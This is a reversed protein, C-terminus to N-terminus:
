PQALHPVTVTLQLRFKIDTEQFKTALPITFDHALGSGVLQDHFRLLDERRDAVGSLEARGDAAIQLDTLTIGDNVQSGLELVLQSWPVYARQIGQITALDDKLSRLESSAARSTERRLSNAAILYSFYNQLFIKAAMLGVALTILGILALSVINKIALFVNLLRLEQKDHPPILNLTIM